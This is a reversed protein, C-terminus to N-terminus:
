VLLNSRGENKGTVTLILKEPTRIELTVGKSFEPGIGPYQELIRTFLIGIANLIEQRPNMLTPIELINSM